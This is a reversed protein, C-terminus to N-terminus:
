GLHAPIGANAGSSGKMCTAEATDIIGIHILKFAGQKAMEEAVICRHCNLHDREFCLLCASRTKAIEIGRQLDDKAIRTRMHASFIRKFESYHGARAALRGAKPDGLGKLHLYGINHSALHSNLAKKSFGRKRSLPLERIDILLDIGSRNLADIFENISIGEYGITHLAKSM